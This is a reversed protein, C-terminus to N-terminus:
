SATRVMPLRQKFLNPVEPNNTMLEIEVDKAEIKLLGCRVVPLEVNEKFRKDRSGDRNIFRWRHDIVQSDAYVHGEAEVYEIFDTKIRLDEYNVHRVSNGNILLLKELLFYVARDQYTIGPVSINVEVNPIPRNFIVAPLRSFPSYTAQTISGIVSTGIPQVEYLWVRSCKRLVSFAAKVEELKAMAAHDLVYGVFVKTRKNKYVYGCVAVMGMLATKFTGTTLSFGSILDVASWVAWIVIICIFFIKFWDIQKIGESIRKEVEQQNIESALETVPDYKVHHIGTPTVEAIVFGHSPFTLKAWWIRIKQMFPGADKFQENSLVFRDVFLAIQEKRTLTRYQSNMPLSEALAQEVHAFLNQVKAAAIWKERDKSIYFSPLIKGARAFRQLDSDSFPGYVKASTM